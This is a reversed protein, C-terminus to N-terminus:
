TGMMGGTSRRQMVKSKTYHRKWEGWTTLLSPYQQLLIGRYRGAVGLGSVGLFEADTKKEYMVFSNQYLKGCHGFFVEKGDIMRVYVVATAM